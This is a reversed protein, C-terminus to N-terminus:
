RNAKKDIAAQISPEQTAPTLSGTLLPHKGDVVLCRVQGGPANSGAGLTAPRDVNTVIGKDALDAAFERLSIDKVALWDRLVARDILYRWTNIDRRASIRRYPRYFPEVPAQGIRWESPMIITEGLFDNLFQALLNVMMGGKQSAVVDGQMQNTFHKVAWEMVRDPSFGVLGLHKVLLAATGVAGLTRVWYRHEKRFGGKVYIEATLEPLKKRVWAMTEPKVLFRLFADGAHGGNAELMRKLRGAEVIDMTGSSEVPFELIRYAHADSRGTAQITNVMSANSATILITQWSAATHNIGGDVNGRLKDRGNTFMEVFAAGEEPDRSRFEDYIVPLNCLTALTIGKSVKTDVGTLSLGRAATGWVTYAGALSTTKGTGSDRTVLSVISGGEEDELFRMLPAAFSALITFSQSESGLGFLRDAADKWAGISGTAKPVLWQSRLKVEPACAVARCESPSYLRDGYLFSANEDKWGFQEYQMRKKERATILDISERVFKRFADHDHVVVGHEAMTAIGQAGFMTKAPLEIAMWGDHPQWAHCLYSHSGTKLEGTQISSFYLPFSAILRRQQKGASDESVMHLSKHEGAYEFTSFNEYPLSGTEDPPPPLPDASLHPPSDASPALLVDLPTTATFPCGKCGEPNIGGFHRCTIPGSMQSARRLKSETYAPGTYASHQSAWKIAQEHGGQCKGLVGCAAYFQPDSLKEVDDRFLGMQRCRDALKEFDARQLPTPGDLVMLRQGLGLPTRGTGGTPKPGSLTFATGRDEVLCGPESLLLRGFKELAYPGPLGAATVLREGSKRHVSGVPRLISAIDATRTGDSILGHQASLSKLGLAYRRWVDPTVSADLPWYVHCGSGSSVLVPMPLETARCFSLVAKAAEIATAYPIDPHKDSRIDVDLWLAKAVLVDEAKRGGPKYSACGHYVARRTGACQRDAELIAVALEASTQYFRQDKFRRDDPDLIVRCKLGETPLIAELFAQTDILPM